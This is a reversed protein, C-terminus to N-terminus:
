DHDSEPQEDLEELEHVHFEHCTTCNSNVMRKRHCDTCTQIAVKKFYGIKDKNLVNQHCEICKFRSHREPAHVLNKFKKPPKALMSYDSRSHCTMCSSKDKADADHKEVDHCNPACEKDFQIDLFIKHTVKDRSHCNECDKESLDTKEFHIHHTFNLPKEGKKPYEPRIVPHIKRIHCGKCIKNEINRIDRHMGRHEIHCSFCDKQARHLKFGPTSSEELGVPPKPGTKFTLQNHCNSCGSAKIGIHKKPLVHCAACKKAKIIHVKKEHCEKCNDNSVGNWSTHCNGCEDEAAEHSSSLKENIFIKGSSMNFGVLVIIVVAVSSITSLLIRV